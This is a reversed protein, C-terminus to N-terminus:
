KKLKSKLKSEEAKAYYKGFFLKFCYGCDKNMIKGIERWSLGKKVLKSIKALKEKTRKQRKM